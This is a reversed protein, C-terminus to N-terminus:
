GGRAAQEVVVGVVGKDPLHLRFRELVFEDAAYLLRLIFNNVMIKLFSNRSISRSRRVSKKMITMGKRTIKRIKLRDIRRPMSISFRACSFSNCTATNEAAHRQRREGVQQLALSFTFISVVTSLSPSRAPPSRRGARNRWRRGPLNKQFGRGRPFSRPVPRNCPRWRPFRFASSRMWLTRSSYPLCSRSRRRSFFFSVAAKTSGNFITSRSTEETRSFIPWRSPPM